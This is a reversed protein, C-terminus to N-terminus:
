KELIEAEKAMFLSELEGHIADVKKQLEDKFYYRDDETMEGAKEQNQIDEWVDERAQKVATRAEELKQKALRVFETRRESTLEPFSVRVGTADSSIGVGLDANTVAKEVEKVLSADWPAVRLTRADEVTISGLQRLPTVSGYASVSVGDLLAPNARGTRLGQYERALWERTERAKTDFPSFDYAM